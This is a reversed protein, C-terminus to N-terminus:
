DAGVAHAEIPTRQSVPHSGDRERPQPMRVGAICETRFVCVDGRADLFAVGYGDNNIVRGTIWEGNVSLHVLLGEAQARDLAAGVTLVMSTGFM